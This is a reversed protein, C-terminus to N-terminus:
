EDREMSFHFERESADSLFLPFPINSFNFGVKSNVQNLFFFFLNMAM